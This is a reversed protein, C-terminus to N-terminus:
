IAINKICNLNDLVQQLYIIYYSISRKVIKEIM